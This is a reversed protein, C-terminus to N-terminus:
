FRRSVIAARAAAYEEDTMDLASRPALPRSPPASAPSSSSLASGFLWPKTRKLAEMVERGGVLKDDLGLSVGSLDALKLGDLDLMGARIAEARLHANVLRTEYTARLEDIQRQYDAVSAAVEPREDDISSPAVQTPENTTQPTMPATM